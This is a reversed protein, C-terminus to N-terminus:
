SRTKLALTIQTYKKLIEEKEKSFAEPILKVAESLISQLQNITDSNQQEINQGQDMKDLMPLLKKNQFELLNIVREKESLLQQHLEKSVFREIENSVYTPHSKKFEYRIYQDGHTNIFENLDEEYIYYKVNGKGSLTNLLNLEIAQELKYRSIKSIKAAQYLTLKKGKKNNTM